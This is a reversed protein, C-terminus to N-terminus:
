KARVEMRPAPADVKKESVSTALRKEQQVQEYAAGLRFAFILAAIVLGWAFWSASEDRRGADYDSSSM